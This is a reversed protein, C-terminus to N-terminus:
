IHNETTFDVSFQNIADEFVSELDASSSNAMEQIQDSIDNVERILNSPLNKMKLKPSSSISGLRHRAIELQQAGKKQLASSHKECLVSMEMYKVMFLPPRMVGLKDKLYKVLTKRRAHSGPEPHGLLHV